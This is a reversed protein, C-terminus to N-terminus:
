SSKESDGALIQEVQDVVDNLHFPKTLLRADQGAIAPSQDAAIASFGTMFMIKLAPFAKRAKQSLEMGDMGPMVIDTLLLDFHDGRKLSELANIGDACGEVEHGARRLAIALFQRMSSDDEAILIRAM